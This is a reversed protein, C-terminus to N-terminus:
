PRRQLRRTQCLETVREAVTQVIENLQLLEADADAPIVEAPEAEAEEGEPVGTGAKQVEGAAGGMCAHPLGNLIMAHLGTMGRASPARHEAATDDGAEELTDSRAGVSCVGLSGAM